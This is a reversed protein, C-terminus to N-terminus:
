EGAGAGDAAGAGARANGDGGGADCLVTLIVNHDNRVVAHITIPPCKLEHTAGSSAWLQCLVVLLAKEQEAPVKQAAKVTRHHTLPRAWPWITCKIAAATSGSM